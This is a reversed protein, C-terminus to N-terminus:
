VDRGPLHVRLNSAASEILDLQQHIIASDILYSEALEYLKENLSNNNGDINVPEGFCVWLELWVTDALNLGIEVDCFFWQNDCWSLKQADTFHNKPFDAPTTTLNERLYAYFGVNDIYFQIASGPEEFDGFKEPAPQLQSDLYKLFRPHVIHM